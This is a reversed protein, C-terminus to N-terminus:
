WYIGHEIRIFIPEFIAEMETADYHVTQAVQLPVKGSLDVCPMSLWRSAVLDDGFVEVARDVLRKYNRYESEANRSPRTAELTEEAGTLKGADIAGM